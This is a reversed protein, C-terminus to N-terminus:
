RRSYNDEDSYITLEVCFNDHSSISIQHKDAYALQLREQNSALGFGGEKEIRPTQPISNEIAFHIKNEESLSLRIHIFSSEEPQVGHKFANEIYCLLIGPEIKQDIFPGNVEFKFDIEGEEFRLLHLDAFNQIFTIEESIAVKDSKTEYVVYRLLGSLKDISQALKPDNKQDVMALLNNMTNFLFHPQLQSRLLNLEAKNKILELQKKDQENSIWMAIFGYGFAVAVYFFLIGYSINPIFLPRSFILYRATIYYLLLCLLTLLISRTIFRKMAKTKGLQGILYLQTYFLLLYFFQGLLFYYILSKNRLIHKIEEGNIIEIEQSEISSISVILWTTIIWFLINLSIGLWKFRM